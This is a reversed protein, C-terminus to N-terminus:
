LNELDFAAHFMSKAFDAQCCLERSKLNLEEDPLNQFLESNKLAEKFMDPHFGIEHKWAYHVM